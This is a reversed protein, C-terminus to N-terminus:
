TTPIICTIVDFKNLNNHAYDEITTALYEIELDEIEAHKRATLIVAESIDLATVRASLRAMAESFIGGGCGVDLVSKNGLDCANNTYNIRVPNILHLTKLKGNPDWWSDALKSFSQADIKDSNMVPTPACM